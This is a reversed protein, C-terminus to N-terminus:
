LQDAATNVRAFVEHRGDRKLLLVQYPMFKDGIEMGPSGVPMGPVSLGLAQDPVNALFQRVFKAPVHGEFVFGQPSVATHCSQYRLEIGSNLKLQALAEPHNGTTFFGNNDMHAMWGLCCGCTPSKHVILHFPDDAKPAMAPENKPEAYAGLSILFATASLWTTLFRKNV